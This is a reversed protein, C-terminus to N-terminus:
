EHERLKEAWESLCNRMVMEATVGNMKAAEEFAAFDEKRIRTTYLTARWLDIRSM